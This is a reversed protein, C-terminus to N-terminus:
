RYYHSYVSVGIHPIFYINQAYVKGGDFSNKRDDFDPESPM